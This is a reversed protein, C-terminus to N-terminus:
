GATGVDRNGNRLIAEMAELDPLDPRGDTSRSDSDKPDTIVVGDLCVAGPLQSRPRRGSFPRGMTSDRAFWAIMRVLPDAQDVTMVSALQDRSVALEATARLSGAIRVFIILSLETSPEGIAAYGQSSQVEL